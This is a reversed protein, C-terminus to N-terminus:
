ASSNLDESRTRVSRTYRTEATNLEDNPFYTEQDDPLEEQHLESLQESSLQSTSPTGKALDVRRKKRKLTEEEENMEQLYDENVRKQIKKSRDSRQDNYFEEDFRKPINKVRKSLKDEKKLRETGLIDFMELGENDLWRMRAIEPNQTINEIKKNRTRAGIEFNKTEQVENGSDVSQSSISASMEDKENKKHRTSRRSPEEAPIEDFRRTTSKQPGRKEKLQIPERHEKLLEGIQKVVSKRSKPPCDAAEWIQILDNATESIADRTAKGGGLFWIHRLVDCKRPLMDKRFLQAMEM